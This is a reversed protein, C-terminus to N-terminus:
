GPRRAGSLLKRDRLFRDIEEAAFRHGEETLHWIDYYGKVRGRFLALGGAESERFPGLLDLCPIGREEAYHRYHEQPEPDRREDMQYSLPFVVLLLRAGAAEVDRALADYVSRLWRWEPSQPDQLVDVRITDELTLRGELQELSEESLPQPPDAIRGLLRVLRSWAASRGLLPIGRLRDERAAQAGYSEEFRRRREEFLPLVRDRHDEPNPIAGEPVTPIEDWYWHLLPDVVDNLCAAVFVLDPRLRAGRERFWALENWATYGRVAGNLVEIGGPVDRLRGELLAPFTGSAPVGEGYAVSDGLVLIRFAGGKEAPTEPGRLGLENVEPHAPNLAFVFSSGPLFVRLPPEERWTTQFYVEIGALGVLLVLLALAAKRLPPKV